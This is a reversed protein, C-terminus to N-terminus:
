HFFRMFAGIVRTGTEPDESYASTKEHEVGVSCGFDDGLTVFAQVYISLILIVSNVRLM